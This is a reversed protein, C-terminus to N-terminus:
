LRMLVENTPVPCNKMWEINSKIKWNKIKWLHPSIDVNSFVNLRLIKYGLQRHNILNYLNVFPFVDYQEHLTLTIGDLLELIDMLDSARKSKATYMIIKATPNQERVEFIVQKVLEPYLRPEGGTIIIKDYGKYNNTTPLNKLDFDNNCCGECTRNCKEAILLRLNM